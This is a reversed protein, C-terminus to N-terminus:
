SVPERIETLKHSVFYVFPIIENLVDEILVTQKHTIFWNPLRFSHRIFRKTWEVECGFAIAYSLNEEYIRQTNYSYEFTKKDRLFNRYAHWKKSQELGYKTLIPTKPAIKVVFMSAVVLSFWILLFYPLSSFYIVWLTFGLIGLFFMAYGFRIYGSQYKNPNSIFYGKKFLSEYIQVYVEAIKKSFVHHSIRIDLDEITSRRSGDSFVKDLLLREYSNLDSYNSSIKLFSFYEGRDVIQIKGRYALNFFISAISRSTIKNNIIISAEAANLDDPKKSLVNKMKMSTWAYSTKHYLYFLVVFTITLPIFSILIWFYISLQGIQYLFSKYWQPSVYGKPLSLEITFTSTPILDYAEFIIKQPSHLYYNAEGVGHVAYIRPKLEEINEIPQPLNVEVHLKDAYIGERSFVVYHFLDYDQRPSVVRNNVTDAINVSSNSNITMPLHYTGQSYSVNMVDSISAFIHQNAILYYVTVGVIFFLVFFIFHKYYFGV